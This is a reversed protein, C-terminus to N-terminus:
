VIMKQVIGISATSANVYGAVITSDEVHLARAHDVEENNARVVVKKTGLEQAYRTHVDCFSFGM